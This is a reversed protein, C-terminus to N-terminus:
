NLLLTWFVWFYIVTLFEVYLWDKTEFVKVQVGIYPYALKQIYYSVLIVLLFVYFWPLNFTDGSASGFKFKFILAFFASIFAPAVTKKIGEILSRKKEAPTKPIVEIEKVKEIKTEKETM